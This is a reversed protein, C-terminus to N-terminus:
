CGWGGEEGDGQFSSSILRGHIIYRATNDCIYEALPVDFERKLKALEVHLVVNANKLLM